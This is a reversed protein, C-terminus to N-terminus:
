GFTITPPPSARSKNGPMRAVAKMMLIQHPHPLSNVAVTTRAPGDTGFYRAYVENFGEYDDMSVLFAEIEILDTLSAGTSRLVDRINEITARAQERIDLEMEGNRKKRAGVFTEDPRRASIGSVFAFDSVMKIHPFSGRPTAMGPLVKSESYFLNGLHQAREQMKERYVDIREQTMRSAPGSVSIAAIVQSDGGKIPVALCRLGEEMEQEDIAYGNKNIKSIEQRLKALDTITNPTFKEFETEHLLEEREITPLGSLLVKGVGSCYIPVTTDIIHGTKLSRNAEATAIFSVRGDNLIAVGVAEKFDQVLDDVHTQAFNALWNDDKIGRAMEAIAFGLQFQNKDTRAIAGLDELTILFRHATAATMGTARAVEQTNLPERSSSCATLIQFAKIVSNNKPTAV